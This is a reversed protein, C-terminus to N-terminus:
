ILPNLIKRSKMTKDHIKKVVDWWNDYREAVQGAIYQCKNAIDICDKCAIFDPYDEWENERYYERHDRCADKGCFDCSMIPATGCCGRNTETEYDCFDCKWVTYKQEVMRIGKTQM